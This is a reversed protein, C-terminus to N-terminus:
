FGEPARAQDEAVFRGAVPRAREVLDSRLGIAIVPRGDAPWGWTDTWLPLDPKGCVVDILLRKARQAAGDSGDPNVVIVARTLDIMGPPTPREDGRAASTLGFFIFALLLGACWRMPDM